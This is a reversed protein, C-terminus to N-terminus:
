VEVSGLDLLQMSPLIVAGRSYTFELYLLLVEVVIDGCIETM